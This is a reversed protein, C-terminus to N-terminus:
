LICASCMRLISVVKTALSKYLLIQSCKVNWLFCYLIRCENGYNFGEDAAKQGVQPRTHLPLHTIYLVVSIADVSSVVGATPWRQFRAAYRM